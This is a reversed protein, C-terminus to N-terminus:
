KQIILKRGELKWRVGAEKLSELVESLNLDRGMKGFLEVNPVGSPYVVEVDYWNAFQQIIESFAVGNLNFLGNKWAMVQGMNVAIVNIQGTVQAQQGPKIVKSGNQNAVKVAGELLTVKVNSFANVNFHTGLVETTTGNATVIFKKAPDKAVEFYGEGKLEVKREDGVFVVPYTISSGANLWVHSGDSLMMDIVKSGKPNTLTNVEGERYSDPGGLSPSVTGDEYQYVIQGNALKVLKVNGLQALQGNGANDLYVTSGDALTITARNSAPAPIDKPAAATIVPQQKNHITYFYFGTGLLIIVCAAAWYWSLLMRKKTVKPQTNERLTDAIKKDITLAKLALDDYYSSDFGPEHHNTFGEALLATLLARSEGSKLDLNNLEQVESATARYHVYQNILYQLRQREM